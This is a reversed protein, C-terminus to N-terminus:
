VVAPDSLHAFFDPADAMCLPSLVFRPTRLRLDNALSKAFPGASM